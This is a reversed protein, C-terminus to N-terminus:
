EISGTLFKPWNFFSLDKCLSESSSDLKDFDDKPIISVSYEITNQAYTALFQFASVLCNGNDLYWFIAMINLENESEDMFCAEKIGDFTYGSPIATRLIYNIYAKEDRKFWDCFYDFSLDTNKAAYKAIALSLNSEMSSAMKM